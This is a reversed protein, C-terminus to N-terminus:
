KKVEFPEKLMIAEGKAAIYDSNIIIKEEIEESEVVISLLHNTMRSRNVKTVKGVDKGTSDYVKLGILETVPTMKLIVADDTM